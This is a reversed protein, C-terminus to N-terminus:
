QRIVFVRHTITMAGEVEGQQTLLIQEAPLERYLGFQGNNFATQMGSCDLSGTQFAVPDTNFRDDFSFGDIEKVSANMIITQLRPCDLDLLFAGIREWASSSHNDMEEFETVFIPNSNWETGFVHQASLTVVIEEGGPETNLSIDSVKSYVVAVAVGQQTRPVFSGDSIEIGTVTRTQGIEEWFAAHVFGLAFRTADVRLSQTARITQATAALATALAAEGNDALPTLDSTNSISYGTVGRPSFEVHVDTEPVTFLASAANFRSAVPRVYVAMELAGIDWANSGDRFEVQLDETSLFSLRFTGGYRSSYTLRDLSMRVDGFGAGPITGPVASPLTVVNSPLNQGYYKRFVAADPHGTFFDNYVFGASTGNLHLDPSSGFLPGFYRRPSWTRREPWGKPRVLSRRAEGARIRIGTARLSTDQLAPLLATVESAPRATPSTAGSQAHAPFLMKGTFSLILLASIRLSSGM